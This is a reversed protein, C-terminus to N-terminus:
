IEQINYEILPPKNKVLLSATGEEDGQSEQLLQTAEAREGTKLQELERELKEFGALTM